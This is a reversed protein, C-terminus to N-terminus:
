KAQNLQIELDRVLTDQLYKQMMQRTTDVMKDIRKVVGSPVVGQDTSLARRQIGEIQESMKDYSKVRKLEDLLREAVDLQNAKIKQKIRSELIRRRVVLDLVEGQLGKLFAETELRRRDDPLDAQDVSKLGTVIPLRALLTDGNKIYYLYLPVNLQISGRLKPPTVDPKPEAPVADPAANEGEESKKKEETATPNSASSQPKVLDAKEIRKYAPPDVPSAAFKRANAIAITKSDSPPDYLITPLDKTLLPLVGRWDTRGEMKLDETGPTRLYIEAGPVASGPSRQIGLKLDSSVHSPKVKLGIRQTRRNKAAALAGRSATFIAGYLRSIDDIKETVAIFTYPITQLLTPNGNSDDRRVVPLIVDGLGIRIPHDEKTLLGAARVRLVATKFDTEEIRVVPSFTDRALQAIARPIESSYIVDMSAIEGMRRVFSDLEKVQIRISEGVKEVSAMFIKDNNRLLSEPQWPLRTPIQRAVKKFKDLDMKQVIAAVTEGSDLEAQLKENSGDFINVISKFDSWQKKDLYPVIDRQLASYQLPQIAISKMRQIASELTRVSQLSAARAELDAIEELEQKSPKKKPDKAVEERKPPPPNMKLFAQKAEESKGVVLILERSLLQEVTLEDLRYLVSGFLADPTSEVNITWTAGFHIEVLEEIKRHMENQSEESLSLSPSVSLWVKVKYPSYEWIEQGVSMSCFPAFLVAVVLLVVICCSRLAIKGGIAFAHLAQFRPSAVTNDNRSLSHLFSIM